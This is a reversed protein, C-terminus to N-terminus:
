QGPGELHSPQFFALTVIAIGAVVAPALAGTLFYGILGLLAAGETVAWLVIAAGRHEPAAWYSQSEEGIGREPIRRRLFGAAVVLQVLSLAAVITAVGGPLLPPIRKSQILFAVVGAALVVGAVLAAHMIRVARAADVTPPAENM